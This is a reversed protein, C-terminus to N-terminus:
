KENIDMQQLAASNAFATHGGRHVILVPNAPAAADLDARSLKRQEAVKTDDYKFGAVWEGKPTKLARERIAQVIQTISRLDCDVARLHQLGSSAVHSHSDIFGPVVARGGLDVRKTAATALAQIERNDGAALIRGGAIAVAQIKRFHDGEPAAYIVGNFLITEPTATAASAAITTLLFERRLM